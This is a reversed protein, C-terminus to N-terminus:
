VVKGCLHEGAERDREEFPQHVAREFRRSKRHRPMLDRQRSSLLRIPLPQRPFATRAPSTDRIARYILSDSAAACSWTTAWNIPQGSVHASTTTNRQGCIVAIATPERFTSRAWRGSHMRKLLDYTAIQNYRETTGPQLEWRLGLNVTLRKTARWDNQSYIVFYKQAFAPWVNEGRRVWWVNEGVLM